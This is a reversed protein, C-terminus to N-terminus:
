PSKLLLVGSSTWHSTSPSNGWSCCVVGCAAGIHADGGFFPTTNGTSATVCYQSDGTISASTKIVGFGCVGEMYNMLGVSKWTSTDVPMVEIGSDAFATTNLGDYNNCDDEPCLWVHGTNQQRAIGLIYQWRNGYMVAGRYWANNKENVGLYGSKNGFSDSCDKGHISAYMSTTLNISPTFTIKCYTSDYDAVSVVTRRNAYVVAGKSAGFDLTAGKVCHAQGAKPFLVTTAGNAAQPVAASSEYYCNSSGSGLVRQADYSAYEVLYLMVEADYEYIDMLAMGAAKARAHITSVATNSFPQGDTAKIGNSGDDVAFGISRISPKHHVWGDAEKDAVCFVRSGDTDEFSTYWFEPTYRGVFGNSGDTAFDPDGYWAVVADLIDDGSSLAAYADLDVNCQKCESWPYISDFPNSYSANVSGKYAFKSVDVTIGVSDFCREMQHTTGNWRVGYVHPANAGTRVAKIQEALEDIAGQPNTAKLGSGANSYAMKSLGSYIGGSTVPNSSGSTPNTDFTLTDQKQDLADYVGDSTVPNTSGNIPATDFTLKDQKQNLAVKVGDSTVPNTSGVTPSTDFALSAQKGDLAAKVGGSTVPNSSGSTPTTDFTLKAQKQDLAAKVGGSKVLNQSSGTPADDLGPVNELHNYDIKHLQGGVRVGKLAM